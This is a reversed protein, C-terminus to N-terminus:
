RIRGSDEISRLLYAKGLATIALREGVTRRRDWSYVPEIEQRVLGNDLLLRVANRLEGSPLWMGGAKSVTRELELFEVGEAELRREAAQNLRRLVEVLTEHFAWAMSEASEREV